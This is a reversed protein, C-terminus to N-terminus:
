EDLKKDIYEEKVIDKIKARKTSLDDVLVSADILDSRDITVGMDVNAIQPKSVYIYRTKINADMPYEDVYDLFHRMALREVVAVRKSLDAHLDFIDGVEAEIRYRAILKFIWNKIKNKNAIQSETLDVNDIKYNKLGDKIDDHILNPNNLAFEKWADIIDNARSEKYSNISESSDSKPISDALITNINKIKSEIEVIKNQIWKLSDDTIVVDSAKKDVIFYEYTDLHPKIFVEKEQANTYGEFLFIARGTDNQFYGTLRGELIEDSNVLSDIYNNIAQQSM